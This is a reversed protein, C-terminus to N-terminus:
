YDCGNIANVIARVVVVGVIACNRKPLNGKDIQPTKSVLELFIDEGGGCSGPLFVRIGPGRGPVLINDFRLALPSNDELRWETYANDKM